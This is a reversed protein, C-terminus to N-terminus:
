LVKQDMLQLCPTKLQVIFFVELFTLNKTEGGPAPTPANAARRSRQRLDLDEETELETKPQYYVIMRRATDDKFLIDIDELITPNEFM